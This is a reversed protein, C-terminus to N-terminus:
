ANTNAGPPVVIEAAIGGSSLTAQLERLRQFPGQSLFVPNEISM